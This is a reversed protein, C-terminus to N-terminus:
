GEEYMHAGEWTDGGGGFWVGRRNRWGIGLVCWLTPCEVLSSLPGSPIFRPFLSGLFFTFSFSLALFIRRKWLCLKVETGFRQSRTLLRFVFLCSFFVSSHIFLCIFSSSLVFWVCLFLFPAGPLREARGRSAVLSSGWHPNYTYM